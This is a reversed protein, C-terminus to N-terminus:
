GCSNAHSFIGISKGICVHKSIDRQSDIKLAFSEMFNTLIDFANTPFDFNLNLKQIKEDKEVSSFQIKSESLSYGWIISCDYGKPEYTGSYKKFGYHFNLSSNLKLEPYLENLFKEWEDSLVMEAVELVYCDKDEDFKNANSYKTKGFISDYEIRYGIYTDECGIMSYGM